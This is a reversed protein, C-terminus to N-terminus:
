EAIVEVRHKKGAKKSHKKLQGYPIRQHGPPIHRYDPPLNVLAVPIRQVPLYAWPGNYYSAKYWRGNHKRYWRNSYFFIDIGVHPAHYVPTGPILVVVPPEPIVIIPLPLGIDMNVNIEALTREPSFLYSIGLFIFGFLIMLLKKKM